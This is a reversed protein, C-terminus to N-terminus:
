KEDAKNKLSLNPYTAQGPLFPGSISGAEVM